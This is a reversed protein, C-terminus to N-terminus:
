PTRPFLKAEGEPWRMSIGDSTLELAISDQRDYATSPGTPTLYNTDPSGDWRLYLSDKETISV